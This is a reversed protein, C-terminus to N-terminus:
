SCPEIYMIIIVRLVTAESHCTLEPVSHSLHLCARDWTHCHLQPALPCNSLTPLCMMIIISCTSYDIEKSILHLTHTHQMDLANILWPRWCGSILDLEMNRCFSTKQGWGLHQLPWTRHLFSTWGTGGPIICMMTVKHRHLMEWMLKQRSTMCSFLWYKAPNPQSRGDHLSGARTLSCYDGCQWWM